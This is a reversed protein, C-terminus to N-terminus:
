KNRAGLGHIHDIPSERGELVALVAPYALRHNSHIVSRVVETRVAQGDDDIEILVSKTLRDRDARLSCLDNSLKRPIMPITLGPLYVTTGRARAEQDIASDFPVYHAVDAIHIALLWRNGKRELSIADDYDKADEPDITLTHTGRFDVRGRMEAETPEQAGEAEANVPAPFEGPLDFRRVIRTIDSAPDEIAGVRTLESVNGNIVRYAVIDGAKLDPHTALSVVFERDGEARREPFVLAVTEMRGRIKSTDIRVVGINVRPTHEVVRLIKGSYVRNGNHWDQKWEVLVSAGDPARYQGSRDIRIDDVGSAEADFPRVYGAGKTQKLVGIAL